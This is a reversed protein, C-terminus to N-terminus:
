YFSYSNEFDNNAYRISNQIIGDTPNSLLFSNKLLITNNVTKEFNIENEM